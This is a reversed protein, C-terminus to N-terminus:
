IRFSRKLRSAMRRGQWGAWRSGADFAVTLTRHGAGLEYGLETLLGGALGEVIAVDSRSMQTRWDRLGKTPERLLNGHRAPKRSATAWRHASEQYKLMHDDFRLDLFRCVESLVEVPNDLLDEYRVERYRDAGLRRGARRGRDVQLKWYLAADEVRDAWGGDLFSQVVNRGDRIIHVFRSEAFLTSLAGLSLVYIPTKDGYRAKGRRLAYLGYVERIAQAYCDPQREAFWRRVADEPVGMRRFGGQGFLDALFSETAFSGSAQYRSQNRALRVVFYTEHPIAMDPHSDFMSRLLTTGSRGCGVLFPFVIM